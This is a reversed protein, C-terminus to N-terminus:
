FIPAFQDAAEKLLRALVEDPGTAKHANVGNLIGIDLMADYSSPVRDPINADNDANFAYAVQQWKKYLKVYTYFQKPNLDTAPDLVYINFDVRNDQKM